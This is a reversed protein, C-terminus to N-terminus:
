GGPKPTATPSCRRPQWSTRSGSRATSGASGVSCRSTTTSTGSAVCRTASPPTSSPWTSWPPFRWPTSPGSRCAPPPRTESRPACGSTAPPARHEILPPRSPLRQLAPHVYPVAQSAVVVHYGPIVRALHEVIQEDTMGYPTTDVPVGLAALQAHTQNPMIPRHHCAVVDVSWDPRLHRALLRVETEEGGVVLWHFVWLLRRPTM